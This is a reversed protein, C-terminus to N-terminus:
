IGLLIPMLCFGMPIFVSDCNEVFIKYCWYKQVENGVGVEEMKGLLVSYIKICKRSMVELLLILYRQQCRGLINPRRKQTFYNKFLYATSKIYNKHSLYILWLLHVMRNHTTSLSSPLVHLSSMLTFPIETGEEWNKQSGLAARLISYTHKIIM